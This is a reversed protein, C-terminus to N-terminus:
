KKRNNIVVSLMTLFVGFISVILGLMRTPDYLLKLWFDNGGFILLFSLLILIIGYIFLIRNFSSLMSLSKEIKQNGIPSMRKNDLFTDLELKKALSNWAKILYDKYLSKGIDDWFSKTGFSNMVDTDFPISGVFTIGLSQNDKQIQRTKNKIRLIPKDTDAKLQAILNDSTVMSIEDDEEVCLSFDSIRHTAAILEDYGARSDFFVFEYKEPISELISCLIVNAEEISNPMIDKFNLVEDVSAVSPFVDFSRYKSIAIKKYYNENGKFKFFDSVSWEDEKTIKLSENKQFYLLVTLGRVFVDLDVVLVRAGKNGLMEAIVATLLTKGTGGKGSIVNIIKQM